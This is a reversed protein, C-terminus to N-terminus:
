EMLRSDKISKRRVNGKIRNSEELINGTINNEIEWNWLAPKIIIIYKNYM